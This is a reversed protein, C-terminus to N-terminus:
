DSESDLPPLLVSEHFCRLGARFRLFTQRPWQPTTLGLHGDSSDLTERPCTQKLVQATRQGSPAALPFHPRPTFGPISKLALVTAEQTPFDVLHM